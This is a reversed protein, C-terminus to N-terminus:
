GVLSRECCSIKIRPLVKVNGCLSCLSPRACCEWSVASLEQDHLRQRTGEPLGETLFCPRRGLGLGTTQVSCRVRSEGVDGQSTPTQISGLHQWGGEEQGWGGSFTVGASTQAGLDVQM